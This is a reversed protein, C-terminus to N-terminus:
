IVEEKIVIPMPDINPSVMNVGSHNLVIKVPYEDVWNFKGSNWNEEFDSYYDTLFICLGVDEDEHWLDKEIRSFLDTHSTGGRGAFHAVDKLGNDMDDKGVITVKKVDMDHQYVIIKDFHMMSDACISLFKALDDSGVSGSTDIGIVMSSASTDTGLGPMTMGHARMRKAPNKWSKNEMSVVVHNKIAIELLEEWPIVVKTLEQIYELLSGGEMGRTLDSESAANIISRLNEKLEDSQCKANKEKDGPEEGDEPKEDSDDIDPTFEQDPQGKIKVKYKTKGNNKGNGGGENKCDPCDGDGKGEGEEDGEGEGGGEGGCTGCEQSIQVYQVKNKMLWEYVGEYTVNKKGILEEVVFPKPDTCPEVQSGIMNKSKSTHGTIPDEVNVLGLDKLLVENVVHDAAMNAVVRDYKMGRMHHGNIFHLMEHLMIFTLQKETHRKVLDRGFVINPEKGNFYVFATLKPDDIIRTNFKLVLAGFLKIEKCNMIRMFAVRLKEKEPDYESM